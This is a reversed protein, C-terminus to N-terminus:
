NNSLFMEIKDLTENSIVYQIDGFKNELNEVRKVWNIDNQKVHYVNGQMFSNIDDYNFKSTAGYLIGLKQYVFGFYEKNTEIEKLKPNIDTVLDFLKDIIIQNSCLLLLEVDKFDWDFPMLWDVHIDLGIKKSLVLSPQLWGNSYENKLYEHSEINTRIHKLCADINIKNNKVFLSKFNKM